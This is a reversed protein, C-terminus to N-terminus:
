RWFFAASTVSRFFWFYSRRCHVDVLAKALYRRRPAQDGARAAAGSLRLGRRHGRQYLDHGRAPTGRDGVERQETGEGGGHEPDDAV